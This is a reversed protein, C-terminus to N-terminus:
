RDSGTSRSEAVARRDEIGSSRARTGLRHGDACAAVQDGKSSQDDSRIWQAQSHSATGRRVGMARLTGSRPLKSSVILRLVDAETLVRVEQMGGTTWLPHRKVVGKCHQKMANVGDAYGLLDTVDKGVFLPEGTEDIVVRVDRRDFQLLTLANSETTM